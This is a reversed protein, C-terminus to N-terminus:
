PLPRSSGVTLYSPRRPDLQIHQPRLGSDNLLPRLPLGKSLNMAYVDIRLRHGPRLLLDTGLLGIDVTIARGPVIQKRKALSLWTYPDVVDGNPAFVSRAPDYATLSAVVQGSTLQTSVGNPAVDNLTAVWYGDRADLVTNLHLNTPGSIVTPTRVPASTFTLANTEAIRSDETCAPFVVLMGVAPQASERSCLTSLGPAVTLRQSSSGRTTLSGDHVSTPSTGSRRGSLYMRQYSMGPRPFDSTSTWGRGHQYLTVPGYRDIGNDIGKLWRDFWAKQLVDIRPPQGAGGMKYGMNVHYTPGMFLQKQGAPLQLRRYMALEDYTFIDFWGGLIFTPVRIKEAHAMYDRRISSNPNVLAAVSPSLQKTSPNTLAEILLPFFTAPDRVRDALWKWDFTGNLMSAVNPIMKLSNVFTLWMPLFGLGIAGGPAIISHILDGGPVVPFIAKLHKPNKNAAYIQNIGSYSGGTMGVKGNSWPQRAAWDIVELTDQQERSQFVDWDGQSWGTGRVDVIIQTYGSRVLRPDVGSIAIGGGRIIGLLQEANAIPTGSLNISNVLQELFPWLVPHNAVEGALSFILKSYPTLNVLVPTKTRIPQGARDAPRYVNAKLIVGDTMRINIDRQAHMGPYQPNSKYDSTWSRGDAGGTPQASATGAFGPAVLLTTAVALVTLRRHLSGM